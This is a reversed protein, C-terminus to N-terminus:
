SREVKAKTLVEIAKLIAADNQYLIPYYADRDFLNRGILAKLIQTFGAENGNFNVSSAKKQTLYNKLASIEKQGITFKSIFDRATKYDSLLQTRNRDTFEFAFTNLIGTNYLRNLNHSYKTTDLSVFIDPVIGGGGYVTKGGPTHFIKTKDVKISDANYLEGSEYREYEENFYADLSKDYPKQICRGTPTYYRAITLRVASGDPLDIQDQVLGKGFSRRGIITARDNDQLAGAVIESASASGEDILVVLGNTEFGGRSTANYVKKPHAKGETYVIQLGDMLFEDALEVATKLFGGGNGRLDLVLKKMGQKTLENFAKLYEDYTTGAFRSIKIFGIGPKLMYAVDISYIPIKGRIIKFDIPKKINGRLISVTVMSGSKGRLKEFVQKNSVKVGAVSKGNVKIIKDGPKIGLKESPGGIIPTIVRITDNIINFEIGIGDFNGELPENVASFDSAPIFDSHPDLSKLMSVITKNELQERNVTDVYQMEIYDLLNNIKNGQATSHFPMAKGSFDSRFTFYYGISIGAALALAFYVPMLPNIKRSTKEGPYNEIPEPV